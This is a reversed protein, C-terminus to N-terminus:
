QQAIVCFLDKIRKKELLKELTHCELRKVKQINCKMTESPNNDIALFQVNNFNKMLWCRLQVIITLCNKKQTLSIYLSSFPTNASKWCVFFCKHTMNNNVM